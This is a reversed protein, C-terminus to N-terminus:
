LDRLQLAEHDRETLIWGNVLFLGHGLPRPMPAASRAAMASAPLALAALLSTKLFSRRDDM